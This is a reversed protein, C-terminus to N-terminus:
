FMLFLHKNREELMNINRKRKNSNLSEKNGNNLKKIQNGDKREIYYWKAKQTWLILSRQYLIIVVNNVYNLKMAILKINNGVSM